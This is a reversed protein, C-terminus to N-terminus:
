LNITFCVIQSPKIETKELGFRNKGKTLLEIAKQTSFVTNLAGFASELGITGYAAYDFEVKKDEIAIPNHDSTVMDINALAFNFFGLIPYVISKISWSFGTRLFILFFFILTIEFAPPILGWEQLCVNCFSASFFFWAM